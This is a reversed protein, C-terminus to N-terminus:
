DSKYTVMYNNNILHNSVVLLQSQVSSIRYDVAREEYNDVIAAQMFVSPLIGVILIIVFIRVKLSRLSVFGKIGGLFKAFTKEEM